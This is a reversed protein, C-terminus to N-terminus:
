NNLSSLASWGASVMESHTHICTDQTDLTRVQSCAELRTTFYNGLKETSTGEETGSLLLGDKAHLHYPVPPHVPSSILFQLMSNEDAPDPRKTEIACAWSPLKPLFSSTYAYEHALQSSFTPDVSFCSYLYHSANLLVLLLDLTSLVCAFWLLLIFALNETGSVQITYAEKPHTLPVVILVLEGAPVRAIVVCHDGVVEVDKVAIGLGPTFLPVWSVM